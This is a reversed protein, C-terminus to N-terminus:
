VMSTAGSSKILKVVTQQLEAHNMTALSADFVYFVLDYSSQPETVIRIIEYVRRRIRNRVVASKHVKKSVVVGTRFHGLNNPVCRMTLKPARFVKGKHYVAAIARPSHFRHISSVV